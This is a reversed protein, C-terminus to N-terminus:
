IQYLCLLSFAFRTSPRVRIIKGDGGSKMEKMEGGWREGM